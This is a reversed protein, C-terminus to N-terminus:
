VVSVLGAVMLALGLVIIIGTTFGMPNILLLIGIVLEVACTLMTGTYRNIKSM